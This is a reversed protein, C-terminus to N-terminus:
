GFKLAIKCFEEAAKKMDPAKYISSGIIAYASTRCAKFAAEIDGGQRGIGPFCFRPTIIKSLMESYKKIADTKNGPVIFFEAGAKAGNSYMNEPADDRIYGGDKSLYAKHTMEGGVMPVIGEALLAKIFSEQTAPGSQPFIIASDVGSSKMVSAFENGMEPIDTSAKQHDYIIPLDSKERILSVVNKLGYNLGLIFGIKYGVIGRIGSTAEVLKRLDDLTKVDCAVIVGHDLAFMVVGFKKYNNSNLSYFDIKLFKHCLLLM